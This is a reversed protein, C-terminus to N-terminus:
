TGTPLTLAPSAPQTSRRQLRANQRGCRALDAVFRTHWDTLSQRRLAAQLLAMRQQREALPMHLARQLAASIGAPDDGDVQLAAGLAGAVGAGRSLILVGPDADPQVAVFEQAVLNMGDRLPTVCAVRATALLGLVADHPLPQQLLLVPESAGQAHRANCRQVAQVLTATTEVYAPLPLRSPPAVQVFATGAAGTPHAGLWEDYAAIRQSLGKTYDLRDVGAVLTRGALWREIQTISEHAAAPVRARLRDIDVGVPYVGTQIDRRDSCFAEIAATFRERDGATQFGILDCALLDRLLAGHMPLRRWQALDPFPVHLFFGVRGRHGHDRLAAALPLLQYDHIWVLDNAHLQPALAGAWARSAARYAAHRTEPSTESAPAAFGHLTPWLVDNSFGLYGESCAVPAGVWVGDHDEVAAQVSRALGGAHPTTDGPRLMRHSLVVLRSM